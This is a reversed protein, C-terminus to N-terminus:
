LLGRYMGGDVQVFAGSVYSARESALFAVVHALERPDGIRRLPIQSADEAAAADVSVGERRARDEHLERIRDTAHRGPLVANITIGDPGVEDVLTRAWGILGTRISTSLMLGPIPQKVASSGIIVVRGYGASRMHPLAERTMRTTSLFLLEFAGLFDEDKLEDFTGTPPGGVNPVLIECGGLAEAGERVFSVAGQETAVDARIAVVTAGTAEVIEDRTAVLAGADRACIAVRAGEEALVEACARGLGKSAAAVLAPRDKLGLDM